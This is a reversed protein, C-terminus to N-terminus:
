PWKPSAGMAVALTVGELFGLIDPRNELAYGKHSPAGLPTPETVTGNREPASAETETPHNPTPTTGGNAGPFVIVLEDGRRYYGAPQLNLEKQACQKENLQLRYDHALEASQRCEILRNRNPSPQM